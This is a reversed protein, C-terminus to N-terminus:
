SGAPGDVGAKAADTGPLALYVLGGVASWV